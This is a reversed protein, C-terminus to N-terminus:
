SRQMRLRSTCKACSYNYSPRLTHRQVGPCCLQHATYVTCSCAPKALATEAIVTNTQRLAPQIAAAHERCMRSITSGAANLPTTQRTLWLTAVALTRMGGTCSLRVAVPPLPTGHICARCINLTSAAHRAVCITHLSIACM